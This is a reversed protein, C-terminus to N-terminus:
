HGAFHNWRPLLVISNPNLGKNKLTDVSAVVKGARLDFVKIAGDDMGKLNLLANQVFAYRMDKTFAVHHAGAAMPITDVLKPSAPGASLDFIHLHGPNATTVYMREATDSFYMELPVNSGSGAFDHAKAVTFGKTAPDWTATWLANGFMNTIYAVPPKAGPVFLIEVPAEGSPSPKESLKYTDLVRGTSAEIATITEGPDKLAPHITSTVLLRDIEENLAIGHPYPMPLNIVSRVSDTSADGVIINGSGMCTLYWADGQSSFILDEGVACGPVDIKKLRYDLRNMDMVYMMGGSLATIYAKSMDRNYFIHHGLTDAPISIDAMIRGFTQSEPDVDIVAIGEKRQGDDAINLVALGEKTKTEYNVMALIHGFAVAPAFAMLGLAWAFTRRAHM